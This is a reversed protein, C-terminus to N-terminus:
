EQWTIVAVLNDGRISMGSAVVMCGEGTETTVAGLGVCISCALDHAHQQSNAVIHQIPKSMKKVWNRGTISTYEKV